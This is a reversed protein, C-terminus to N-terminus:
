YIVNRVSTELANRVDDCKFTGETACAHFKRAPCYKDADVVSLDGDLREMQQCLASEIVECVDVWWGYVYFRVM